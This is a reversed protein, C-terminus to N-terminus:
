AMTETAPPPVVSEGKLTGADVEAQQQSQMCCIVPCALCYLCHRLCRGNENDPACPDACKHIFNDYETNKIKGQEMVMNRNAAISCVGCCCVEAILFPRSLEGPICPFAGNMCKYVGADGLLM